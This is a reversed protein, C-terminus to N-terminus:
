PGGARILGEALMYELVKAVDREATSLDIDFLHTLRHAAARPDAAGAAIGKWVEVGAANLTYYFKTDLHLVVGTGDALETLLCKDNVSLKPERPV